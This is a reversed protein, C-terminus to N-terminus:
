GKSEDKNIKVKEEIENMITQIDKGETNIGLKKALQIVLNEDEKSKKPINNVQSSSVQSPSTQSINAQSTTQPVPEEVTKQLEESAKKFERFAEGLTRAIEPMKSPGFILLLIVLILVIEPWGLM